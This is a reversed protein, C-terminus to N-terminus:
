EDSMVAEEGSGANLEVVKLRGVDMLWGAKKGQFTEGWIEVKHGKFNDLDVVSSTLYVWQSKDAGRELHHSGEGEIGGAVILGEASDRFTKEDASGYVDGVKISGAGDPNQALTSAGPTDGALLLQRQAAFWGSTLGLIVAVIVILLNATSRSPNNTSVMSQTELKNSSAPNEINQDLNIKTLEAM